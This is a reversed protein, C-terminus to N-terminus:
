EGEGIHADQGQSALQLAEERAQSQHAEFASQAEGPVLVVSDLAGSVFQGWGLDVVRDPKGTAHPSHQVRTEKGTEPDVVLENHSTINAEVIAAQRECEAQPLEPSSIPVGEETNRMTIQVRPM